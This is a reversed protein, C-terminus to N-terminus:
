NAEVSHNLIKIWPFFVKLIVVCIFFLCSMARWLKAHPCSGYVEFNHFSALNLVGVPTHVPLLRCRQPVLICLDWWIPKENLMTLNQVIFHKPFNPFTSIKSTYNYLPNEKFWSEFISISIFVFFFLFKLSMKLSCPFCVHSAPHSPLLKWSFIQDRILRIM